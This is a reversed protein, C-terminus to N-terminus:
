AAETDAADQARKAWAEYQALTWRRSKGKARDGNGAMPRPFEGREIYRDLTARSWGTLALVDAPTLLRYRTAIPPPTTATM